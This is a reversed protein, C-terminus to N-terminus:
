WRWRCLWRQQWRRWRERLRRRGREAWANPLLVVPVLGRCKTAEATLPVEFQAHVNTAGPVFLVACRWWAVPRPAVDVLVLAGQRVDDGVVAESRAGGEWAHWERVRPRSARRETALVTRRTTVVM